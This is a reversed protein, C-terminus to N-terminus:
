REVYFTLRVQAEIGSAHIRKREFAVQDLAATPLEDLAQALFRRVAPYSGTVPLTVEYRKLRGEGEALMRYEGQRLTLGHSGAIRHLRALQGPVPDAERFHRYFQDLRVSPDDSRASASSRRLARLEAEEVRAQMAPVLLAQGAVAVALMLLAITGPWGLPSRAIAWRLRRM